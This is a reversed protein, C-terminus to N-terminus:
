KMMQICGMQLCWTLDSETLIQLCATPMMETAPKCCNRSKLIHFNHFAAKPGRISLALTEWQGGFILPTRNQQHLHFLQMSQRLRVNPLTGSSDRRLEM